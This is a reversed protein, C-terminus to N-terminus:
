PTKNKQATSKKPFIVLKRYFGDGMSQTRVLNDSKLTLHVIRRDHANMQGVSAPKGTRKVKQATRTALQKLSDKRSELYGEIDVQVRIRTKNQRNIAKEVLYQIAELTQGRKGIIISANDNTINFLVRESNQEVSITSETTIEDLIRQLVGKGIDVADQFGDETLVFDTQKNKNSNKDNVTEATLKDQPVPKKEPLLVRIKAKKTGVLGFIGTSGYSIVDYNLDALPIKLKKSAKQTITEINKGEFEMFSSM